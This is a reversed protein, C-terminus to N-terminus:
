GPRRTLIHESPMLNATGWTSPPEPRQRAYLGQLRELREILEEQKRLGLCQMIAALLFTLAALVLMVGLGLDM